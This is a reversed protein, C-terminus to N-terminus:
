PVVIYVGIQVVRETQVEGIVDHVSTEVTIVALSIAELDATYFILDKINKSVTSFNEKLAILANGKFGRLSSVVVIVVLV